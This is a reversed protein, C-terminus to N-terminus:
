ILPSKNRVLCVDSVHTLLSLGASVSKIREEGEAKPQFSTRYEGSAAEMNQNKADLINTLLVFWTM